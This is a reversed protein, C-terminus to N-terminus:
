ATRVPLDLHVLGAIGFMLMVPETAGAKLDKDPPLVISPSTTASPAGFDTSSGSDLRVGATSLSGSPTNGGKLTGVGGSPTSVLALHETVPGLNRVTLQVYAAGSASLRVTAASIELDVNRATLSLSVGDASTHVATQAAGPAARQVGAAGSASCGAVLAPLLAAALLAAAARPRAGSRARRLTTGPYRM